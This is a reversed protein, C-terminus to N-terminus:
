DIVPRALRQRRAGNVYRELQSRAQRAQAVLAFVLGQARRERGAARAVQLARKAEAVVRHEVVVQVQDALRLIAARQRTSQLAQQDADGLCEVLEPRAAAADEGVAVVIADE